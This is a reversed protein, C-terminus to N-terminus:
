DIDFGGVDSMNSNLSELYNSGKHIPITNVVSDRKVSSNMDFEQPFYGRYISVKGNLMFKNNINTRSVGGLEMPTLSNKRSKLVSM